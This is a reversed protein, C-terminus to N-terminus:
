NPPGAVAASGACWWFRCCWRLSSCRPLAAFRIPNNLPIVPFIILLLATRLVLGRSRPQLVLISGLTALLGLPWHLVRM